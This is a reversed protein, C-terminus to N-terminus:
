ALDPWRELLAGACREAEALPEAPACLTAGARWRGFALAHGSAVLAAVAAHVRGRRRAPVELLGTAAGSSAAEYAMSVSDETVWVRGARALQAPLWGPSSDEFPMCAVTQPLSLEKLTGAPTRPSTALVWALAPDRSVLAHVQERLGAPDWRHHRSPGGVLILALASDRVPGPRARNLAGLSVLVNGGAAIGDHGPIVCLDFWSRPLGPNMLVVSRARFRRAALLLALHTRRGAGIALAPADGSGCPRGLAVRAGHVAGNVAVDTVAVPRRRALAEVLGLSQNDHGRRGDSIRWISLARQPM